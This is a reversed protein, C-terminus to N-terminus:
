LTAASGFNQIVRARGLRSALVDKKLKADTSKWTPLLTLEEVIQEKTADTTPWEIIWGGRETNMLWPIIRESTPVTDTDDPVAIWRAHWDVIWTPISKLWTSPDSSFSLAGKSAGELSVPGGEAAEELGKAQRVFVLQVSSMHALACFVDMWDTDKLASGHLASAIGDFIRRRKRAFKSGSLTDSELQLTTALVRVISNRVSTTADMFLPDRIWAFASLIGSPQLPVAYYTPLFLDTMPSGTSTASNMVPQIKIPALVHSRSPNYKSWDNLQSFSVNQYTKATAM